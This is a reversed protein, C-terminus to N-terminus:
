IRHYDIENHCDDQRRREVAQDRAGVVFSDCGFVSRRQLHPSDRGPQREARAAQWYARGVDAHTSANVQIMSARWLTQRNLMASM